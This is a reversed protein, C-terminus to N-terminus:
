KHPWFGAVLTIAVVLVLVSYAVAEIILPRGGPAAVKRPRGAGAGQGPRGAMWVEITEPDCPYFDRRKGTSAYAAWGDDDVLGGMVVYHGPAAYDWGNITRVAIRAPTTQTPVARHEAPEYRAEGGHTNVWAVILEARQTMGGSDGLPVFWQMAEIVTPKSRYKVDDGERRRVGVRHYLRNHLREEVKLPPDSCLGDDDVGNAIAEAASQARSMSADWM